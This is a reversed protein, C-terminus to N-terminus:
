FWALADSSYGRVCACVYSRMYERYVRECVYARERERKTDKLGMIWFLGSVRIWGTSWRTARSKTWTHMVRACAGFRSGLCTGM